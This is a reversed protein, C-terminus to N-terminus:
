VRQSGYFFEYKIVRILGHFLKLLITTADTALPINHVSAANAAATAAAIPLM